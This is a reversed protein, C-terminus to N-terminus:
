WISQAKAFVTTDNFTVTVSDATCDVKTISAIEELLITPYKMKYNVDMHSNDAYDQEYHLSVDKKPLLSSDDGREIGRKPLPVYLLPMTHLAEEDLISIDNEWADVEKALVLIAMTLLAVLGLFSKM